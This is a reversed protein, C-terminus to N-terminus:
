REHYNKSKHRKHISSKERFVRDPNDLMKYLQKKIDNWQLQKKTYQIPEGMNIDDYYSLAKMIIMQNEYNYKKEYANIMTNLSIYKSLEAIDIFDKLRTGNNVIANLKMAAVDETSAMRIGENIVLPKVLPYKHAICDIMINDIYGKLTNNEEMDTILNYNNQLHTKLLTSDFDQTTFLDIDVSKRHGINLALNTGGVLFFNDFMKDSMIKVILSFTEDTVTEKHLM